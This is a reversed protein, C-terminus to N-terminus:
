GLPLSSLGCHRRLRIKELAQYFNQFSEDKNEVTPKYHNLLDFDSLMESRLIPLLIEVDHLFSERLNDGILGDRMELSTSILNPEHALLYILYSRYLNGSLGLLEAKEILRAMIAFKDAAGTFIEEDLLNRFSILRQLNM